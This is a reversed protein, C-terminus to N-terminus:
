GGSKVCLINHQPTVNAGLFQIFGQIHKKGDKCLEGQYIIYKIQNKKDIDQINQHEWDIDLNFSTFCVNKTETM